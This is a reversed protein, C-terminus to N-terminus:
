KHNYILHQVVNNTYLAYLMIYWTWHKRPSRWTHNNCIQKEKTWIWPLDTPKLHVSNRFDCYKWLKEITKINFNSHLTSESKTLSELIDPFRSWTCRFPSTCVSSRIATWSIELCSFSSFVIFSLTNTLIDKIGWNLGSQKYTAINQKLTLTM